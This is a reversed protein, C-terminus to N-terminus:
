IVFFSFPVFVLWVFIVLGFAAFLNQLLYNMEIGLCDEVSTNSYISNRM